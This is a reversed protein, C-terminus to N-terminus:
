HPQKIYTGHRTHKIANIIDWRAYFIGLNTLRFNPFSECNDVDSDAIGRKSCEFQSEWAAKAIDFSIGYKVAVQKIIEEVKKQM